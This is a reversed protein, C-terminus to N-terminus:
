KKTAYKDRFARAEASQEFVLNAYSYAFKKLDGDAGRALVREANEMFLASLWGYSRVAFASDLAPGTKGALSKNVFALLEDTSDKPPTTLAIGEKEARKRVQDGMERHRKQLLEAFKRINKDELKAGVEAFRITADTRAVYLSYVFQATPAASPAGPQEQASVSSTHAAIALVALAVRSVVASM